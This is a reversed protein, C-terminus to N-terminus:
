ISIQSVNQKWFVILGIFSDKTFSFVSIFANSIIVYYVPWFLTSVIFFIVLMENKAM